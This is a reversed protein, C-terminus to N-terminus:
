KLLQQAKQAARSNPYKVTLSRLTSKASDKQQLRNQCRAILLFADPTRANEPFRQTLQYATRVASECNNLKEHSNSLLWLAQPTAPSQLDDQPYRNLLGVVQAYQKNTFAQQAQTLTSNEPLTSPLSNNQYSIDAIVAISRELNNQRRELAVIKEKLQRNDESLENIRQELDALTSAPQTNNEATINHTDTAVHTPQNEAVTVTQCANLCGSVLWLCLLSTDTNKMM